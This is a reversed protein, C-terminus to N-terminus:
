GNGRADQAFPDCVKKVFQLDALAENEIAESCKVCVVGVFIGAVRENETAEACKCFCHPIANTKGALFPAGDENAAPGQDSAM